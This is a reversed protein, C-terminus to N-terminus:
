RGGSISVKIKTESCCKKDFEKVKKYLEIMEGMKEGSGLLFPFSDVGPMPVESGPRTGGPGMKGMKWSSGVLICGESSLPTSGAHIYVRSWGTGPTKLKFNEGTPGSDSYDADYTGPPMPYQKPKGYQLHMNYTVPPPEMTVGSVPNFTKKECKSEVKVSMTFSGITALPIGSHRQTPYTTRNISITIESEGFPDVASVPNNSVMAYLNEGGGEELPDRSLWRGKVPEYPRRPYMVIGTEQDTYRTSWRFPKVNAM